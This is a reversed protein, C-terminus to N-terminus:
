VLERKKRGELDESWAIAVQKGILERPDYERSDLGFRKEIEAKLKGFADLDRREGPSIELTLALDEGYKGPKGSAAVIVGRTPNPDGTKGIYKKLTTPKM